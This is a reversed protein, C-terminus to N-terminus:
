DDVPLRLDAGEVLLGATACVLAADTAFSACNGLFSGHTLFDVEMVREGDYSEEAEFPLQALLEELDIYGDGNSDLKAFAADVRTEWDADKQLQVMVGVM